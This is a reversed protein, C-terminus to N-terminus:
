NHDYIHFIDCHPELICDHLSCIIIINYIIINYTKITNIYCLLYNCVSCLWKYINSM